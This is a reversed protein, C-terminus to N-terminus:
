RRGYKMVSELDAAVEWLMRLEKARPDNFCRSVATKDLGVLMGLEKQSPRPLLKPTQGQDCLFQAHDRAARIHEVLERKLGEIGAARQGRRNPTASPRDACSPAAPQSPAVHGPRGNPLKRAGAFGLGGSFLVQGYQGLLDGLMWAQKCAELTLRKAATEEFPTTMPYCGDLNGATEELRDCHEKLTKALDPRSIALQAVVQWVM